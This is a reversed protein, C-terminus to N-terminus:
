VDYRKLVMPRPLVVDSDMPWRSSDTVLEVGGATVLYTDEDKLGGALSPNWAMATNEDIQQDWWPSDRQVPAIEFERQAYGIPGGQYHERWVGAHGHLSYSDALSSLVSGYTAGPVGARLVDRHIARPVDLQAEFESTDGASVYRTLAVHLGLHRAVLVAMVRDHTAEGVAVPHRYRRLRDDAGVLLVPADGGFQEVFNAIRGAIATDTEGPQWTRLADEVARAANQGLTRLRAREDEDLVLRIRTLEDDLDHGFAPHGDSGIHTAPAGLVDCAATVLADADWWPVVVLDVGAPLLEERVRREEVETTIVTQSDPGIVVWVTDIGATRDIPPNIGPIAWAVPGPRTLVIGALEAAPEAAASADHSGAHVATLLTRARTLSSSPPVLVM